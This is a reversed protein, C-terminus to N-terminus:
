FCSDLSRRLNVNAPGNGEVRVITAGLLKMMEVNGTARVFSNVEVGLSKQQESRASRQLMQLMKHWHGKITEECSRPCLDGFNDILFLCSRTRQALLKSIMQIAESLDADSPGFTSLQNLGTAASTKKSEYEDNLLQSIFSNTLRCLLDRPTRKREGPQPSIYAIATRSHACAAAYVCKSLLAMSSSGESGSVCLLGSGPTTLWVSLQRQTQQAVQFGPIAKDEKMKVMLEKQVFSHAEPLINQLSEPVAEITRQPHCQTLPRIFILENGAPSPYAVSM